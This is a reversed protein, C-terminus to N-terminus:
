SSATRRRSGGGDGYRSLRCTRRLLNNERNLSRASQERQDGISGRGGISRDGDGCKVTSRGHSQADGGRLDILRLRGNHLQRNYVETAMCGHKIWDKCRDGNRCRRGLVGCFKVEIMPFDSVEVADTTRLSHHEQM